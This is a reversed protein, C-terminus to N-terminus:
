SMLNLRRPVNIVPADPLPFDESNSAIESPNREAACRLKLADLSRLAGPDVM